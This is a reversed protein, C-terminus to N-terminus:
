YSGTTSPIFDRRRVLYLRWPEVFKSGLVVKWGFRLDGDDEEHSM